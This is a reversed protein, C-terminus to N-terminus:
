VKPTYPLNDMQFYEFEVAYAREANPLPWIQVNRIVAPFTMGTTFIWVLQGAEAKLQLMDYRFGDAGRNPHVYSRLEGSMSGQYGRMTQTVLVVTRAGLPEYVESKEGFEYTRNKDNVIMVRPSGEADGVVWTGRFTNKGVATPNAASAKGNVVAQVSYVHAQNKVPFRDTWANHIGDVWTDDDPDLGSAIVRGDRIVSYSDPATARDWEIRNGPYPELGAATLNTVPDTTADFEYTFYRTLQVWPKGNANYERDVDDYVRVDIRYTADKVTILGAPVVFGDTTTSQTRPRSWILVDRDGDRRYLGLQYSAQAGTLVNWTIPPTPETVFDNPDPQPNQIEITPLVEYRFEAPASWGSWLGAGDQVRVRWWRPASAPITFEGTLDWRPSDVPRVGSDYGPAGFGTSTTAVQVQVNTLDTDGSVDTYDFSLMPTPTSVARGGAPSLQTPTDPADSWTIEVWPRLDPNPHQSAMFRPSWTEATWDSGLQLGYWKDGDAVAQMHSTIDFEYEERDPYTGSKSAYVEGTYFSTARSNWNVKGYSITQFLRRLYLQITGAVPKAYGYLHLKASTITAGLPFPRTFYLYGVRIKGPVQRIYMSGGLNYNALPNDQAVHTDLLNVVTVQGM